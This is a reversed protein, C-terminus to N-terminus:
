GINFFKILSNILGLEYISYWLTVDDFIKFKIGSGSLADSFIELYAFDTLPMVFQNLYPWKLVTHEMDRVQFNPNKLM